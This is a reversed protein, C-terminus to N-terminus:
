WGLREAVEALVRREAGDTTSYSWVGIGPFRPRDVVGAVGAVRLAVSRLREHDGRYSDILPVVDRGHAETWEELARDLLRPTDATRYCQPSGIGVALEDWPISARWTSRIPYSTVALGHRETMRDLVAAVLERAGAATWEGVEGPPAREVDLIAGRARAALMADGLREGVRRAHKPHPFSWVWVEIGHERLASALRELAAPRVRRGDPTEVLLAGWRLRAEVMRRAIRGADESWERSTLYAGLGRMGQAPALTDRTV